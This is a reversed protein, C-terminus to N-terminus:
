QCGGKSWRMLAVKFPGGYPHQLRLVNQPNAVYTAGQECLSHRDWKHCTACNKKWVAEDQGEIPPFLPVGDALQKISHGNVPLPGFSLPNEFSLIDEATVAPKGAAPATVVQPTVVDSQQTMRLEPLPGAMATIISYSIDRRDGKQDFAVRGIATSFEVTRLAEVVRKPDGGGARRVADAWVQVAVYSYVAVLDPIIGAQKLQDIASRFEPRGLSEVPAIVNVAEARAGALRWFVQSLMHQGGILLPRVGRAHLKGVFEVAPAADLAMYIIDQPERQLKDVLRDAAGSIDRLPEFRASARVEAPLALRVMEAMARRYRYDSYVVTLKKSKKAGTFYAGLAQAEQEDNAAMRFITDLNQRTLEVITVTPVLQIVGAKAYIPAADMAVSPCVPGILFSIKDQNIHRSAVNSAMGADCRDDGIALQVPVGMIGGAANLQQVAIEV